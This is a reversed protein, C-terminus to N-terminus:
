RLYSQSKKDPYSATKLGPVDPANHIRNTHIRLENRIESIGSVSDVIEEVQRRMRRNDVTGSLIVIGKHATVEVETPDVYGHALLRDNIEETIRADSRKYNKPGLGTFPGEPFRFREHFEYRDFRASHYRRLSWEIILFIPLIGFVPLIIWGYENIHNM